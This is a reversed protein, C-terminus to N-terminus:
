GWHSGMQVLVGAAVLGAQWRILTPLTPTRQEVTRYLWQGAAM